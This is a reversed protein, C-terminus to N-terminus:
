GMRKLDEEVVVHIHGEPDEREEHEKRTEMQSKSPCDRRHCKQVHGLLSIRRAKIFHVIDERQLIEDTEGNRLCRWEGAEMIPGYINRVIKM